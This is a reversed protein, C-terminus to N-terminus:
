AVPGYPDLGNAQFLAILYGFAFAFGTEHPSQATIAPVHDPMVMADYGVEAYLRLSEALDMDGEDPFCEVFAHRGGRINRLHVNFIKGRSGFWRIVDAIERRPDVLSEAVTGQCFNLGHFPSERMQVFRKLGEVDRLVADVGRYGPPTCPDHPHCALRVRCAEAVPVVRELFYDIREWYTDADVIGAPGIEGATTDESLRFAENLSGGRGRVKATRPIGLINLNYKAAGIGEERLMAIIGCVLDIERDRAPSLGLMINPCQAKDISASSLPLQIMDLSLGADLLEDRHRRLHDRTWSTPDGPPDICVHRVGLQALQALYGKGLRDFQAASLQTGVHM